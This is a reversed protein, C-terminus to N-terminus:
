APGPPDSATKAQMGARLAARASYARSYLTGEAIGLIEAAVSGKIERLSLLSLAERQPDPLAAVAQELEARQHEDAPSEIAPRAARRTKERRRRRVAQRVQRRAENLAIRYIWTEIAAEGRFGPLGRYVALFTEQLVDQALDADGTLRRALSFVRPAMAAFLEDFDPQRDPKTM